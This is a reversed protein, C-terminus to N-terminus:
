STPESGTNLEILGLIEGPEVPKCLHANFGAEEALARDYDTGYGTVAVLFSNATPPNRRLTRAVEFGDMWPLGIDCVVADPARRFAASVGETGTLAVVANHGCLEFYTQLGEAFDQNDEIVLIDLKRNRCERPGAEDQKAPDAGAVFEAQSIRQAAARVRPVARPNTDGSNKRITPRTIM